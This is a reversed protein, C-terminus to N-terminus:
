VWSHVYYVHTWRVKNESFAIVTYTSYSQFLSDASSCLRPIIRSDWTWTAHTWSSRRRWSQSCSTTSPSWSFSVCSSLFLAVVAFGVLGWAAIHVVVFLFTDSCHLLSKFPHIRPAMPFTVGLPNPFPTQYTLAHWLKSDRHMYLIYLISHTHLCHALSGCPFYRSHM